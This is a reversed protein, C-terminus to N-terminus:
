HYEQFKHQPYNLENDVNEFSDAMHGREVSTVGYVRVYPVGTLFVSFRCKQCSFDDAHVKHM